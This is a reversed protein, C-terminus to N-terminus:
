RLVACPRATRLPFPQAPPGSRTRSPGPHTLQLYEIIISTERIARDGDVLLPFKAMPWRRLWEQANHPHEADICRFEFPVHNEYLAILAKQCYSAFPHAYLKPKAAM